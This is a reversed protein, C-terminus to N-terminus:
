PNKLTCRLLKLTLHNLVGSICTNKFLNGFLCVIIHSDSNIWDSLKIEICVIIWKLLAKMILWWLGVNAEMQEYQIGSYLNIDLPGYEWREDKFYRMQTRTSFSSIILCIVRCSPETYLFSISTSGEDTPRKTM